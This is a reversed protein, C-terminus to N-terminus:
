LILPRLRPIVAPSPSDERKEAWVLSDAWAFLAANATRFFDLYSHMFRSRSYRQSTPELQKKGLPSSRSAPPLKRHRMEVLSASGLRAFASGSTMGALCWRRIAVAAQFLIERSM